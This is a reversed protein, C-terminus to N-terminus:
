DGADAVPRLAAPALTGSPAREGRLLRATVTVAALVGLGAVALAIRPSGIAMLVGGLVFGAGYCAATLSELLGMVRAQVDDALREQVAQIVAICYVGNGAGGLLCGALAVPVSPAAAM